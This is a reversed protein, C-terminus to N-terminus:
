TLIISVFINKMVHLAYIKIWLCWVEGFRKGNYKTYLIYSKGCLPKHISCQTHGQQLHLLTSCCYWYIKGSLLSWHGFLENSKIVIHKVLHCPKRPGYLCGNPTFMQMILLELGPVNRWNLLRIYMYIHRLSRQHCRHSHCKDKIISYCPIKMDHEAM